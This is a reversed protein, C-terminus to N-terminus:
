NQRDGSRGEVIPPFNLNSIGSLGKINADLKDITGQDKDGFFTVVKDHLEQHDSLRNYCLFRRQLRATTMSELARM